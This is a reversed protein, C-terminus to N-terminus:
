PPWSCWARAPGSGATARPTTFAGRTTWSPYSPLVKPDARNIEDIIVITDPREIAKVFEGEQWTFGGTEKDRVYAGFWQSRDRMVAANFVEVKRHLSSGIAKALTTKGTGTTGVLRINVPVQEKEAGALKIASELLKRTEQSVYISSRGTSGPGKDQPVKLTETKVQGSPTERAVVVEAAEKPKSPQAPPKPLPATAVPTSGALQPPGVTAQIVPDKQAGAAPRSKRGSRTRPPAPNPATVTPRPANPENYPLKQGRMSPPLFPQWNSTGPKARHIGMVKLKGSKVEKRKNIMAVMAQPTNFYEQKMISGSQSSLIVQYVYPHQAPM